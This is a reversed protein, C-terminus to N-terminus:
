CYDHVHFLDPPAGGALRQAAALAARALVAFRLANDPYDGSEGGYQGDRDYLPPCDLFLHRVPGPPGVLRVVRVALDAAPFAVAVEIGTDELEAGLQAARARAGRYLPTVVSIEVEGGARAALAAPLAGVVEGLGGTQSWPTVESAM